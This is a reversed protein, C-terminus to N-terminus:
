KCTISVNVNFQAQEPTRARIRWMQPATVASPFLPQTQSIPYTIRVTDSWTETQPDFIQAHPYLAAIVPGYYKGPSPEPRIVAALPAVIPADTTNLLQVPIHVEHQDPLWRVEGIVLHIKATQDCVSSGVVNQVVHITSTYLQWSDGRADPWLPHFRGAADVTMTSFDGGTTRLAFPSTFCLSLTPGEPSTGFLISATPSAAHAARQPYSTATTLRTPAAFTQGGDTSASFYVDYGDTHPANRADFWAIGVTGDKNVALMPVVQRIKGHM